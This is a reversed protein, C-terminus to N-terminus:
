GCRGVKQLQVLEAPAQLWRRYFSEDLGAYVNTAIAM